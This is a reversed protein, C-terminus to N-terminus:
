KEKRSQRQAQKQLVSGSGGTIPRSDDEDEQNSLIAELEKDATPTFITVERSIAEPTTSESDIKVKPVPTSTRPEASSSRSDCSRAQSRIRM